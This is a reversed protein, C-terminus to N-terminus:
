TAAVGGVARTLDVDRSYARALSEIPVTPDKASDRTKLLGTHGALASERVRRRLQSM